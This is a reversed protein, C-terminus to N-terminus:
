NRPNNQSDQVLNAPGDALVKQLVPIIHALNYESEVRERGRKGYERRAEPNRIFFELAEAIAEPDKERILLGTKGDVLESIGGTDTAIVPLEYAMAEKLSHPIGEAEGSRAIVSTMIFIDIEQRAYMELLEDNPIVGVLQVYQTLELEQLRLNLSNKLQGQGVLRWRFNRIGRKLLLNAAELAYELGKVESLTAVTLVEVTESSRRGDSHPLVFECNVGHHITILKHRYRNDFLDNLRQVGLTDISRLFQMSDLMAGFARQWKANAVYSSHLIGSWPVSLMRSLIYGIDGVTTLQHTCIHYVSRNKLKRGLYLAKPVVLVGKVFDQPTNSRKVLWFFIDMLLRPRSVITGILNLFVPVNILPVLLSSELLNAADKGIVPGTISRPILILNIGAKKLAILEHGAFSESGRFPFFSTIVVLTSVSTKEKTV